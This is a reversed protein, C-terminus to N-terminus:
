KESSCDLSFNQSKTPVATEMQIRPEAYITAHFRRCACGWGKGGATCKKKASAFIIVLLGVLVWDEGGKEFLIIDRTAFCAIEAERAAPPARRKTPPSNSSDCDRGHTCRPTESKNQAASVRKERASRVGEKRLNRRWASSASGSCASPTLRPGARPPPIFHAQLKSAQRHRCRARQPSREKAKRVM